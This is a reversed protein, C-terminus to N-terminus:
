PAYGALIGSITERIEVLRGELQEVPTMAIEFLIGSIIIRVMQGGDRAGGEPKRVFKNFKADILACLRDMERRM